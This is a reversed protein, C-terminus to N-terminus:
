KKPRRLIYVINTTGSSNGFSGGGQIPVAAVVEWGEKGDAALTDLDRKLEPDGLGYGVMAEYEWVTAAARSQANVSQTIVMPKLAIVSLLLVVLGLCTRSFRDM